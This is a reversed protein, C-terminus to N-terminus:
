MSRRPATPVTLNVIDFPDDAGSLLTALNVPNAADDGSPVTIRRRLSLPTISVDVEVGQLVRMEAYGNSDTTWCLTTDWVTNAALLTPPDVLTLTVNAGRFPRGDMGFLKIFLTAFDKPPDPDTTTPSFVETLLEFANNGDVLTLNKVECKWNNAGFVIGAKVLSVTYDGPVLDLRVEGNADTWGTQVLTGDTESVILKANTHKAAVGAAVFFTPFKARPTLILVHQADEPTPTGGIDKLWVVFYDGVLTFTYDVVEYALTAANYPAIGQTTVAITFGTPTASDVADTVSGADLLTVTLVGAGDDVVSVRAVSAALAIETAIAVAVATDGDVATVEIGTQDVVAPDTGNASMNYWVYFDATGDSFAWYDDNLNGGVDAITAVTFVEKASAGVQVGEGNLVKATFTEGAAYPLRLDNEGNLPFTPVADWGVQVQEALKITGDYTWKVTYTGPKTFTVATALHLNPVVANQAIVLTFVTADDADEVVGTLLSPDAVDGSADFYHFVRAANVTATM